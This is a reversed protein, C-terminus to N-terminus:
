EFPRRWKNGDLLERMRAIGKEELEDLPEDPLERILRVFEDTPFLRNVSEKPNDQWAVGGPYIFNIAQALRKKRQGIFRRWFGVEMDRDAESNNCWALFAHWDGDNINVARIDREAGYRSRMREMFVRRLAVPDVNSFDVLIKNRERHEIFELLRSAFTDDAARRMAGELIRQAVHTASLKQAAVFVLNLARSAEGLHMLDYIYDTAREAAAYALYEAASDTLRDAMVRGLKWLFDERKPQMRPIADLVQKYVASVGSESDAANMERLVREMEANSFMDQPIASRFYISFYDPSCIRKEDDAIGETTRRKSSRLHRNDGGSSVYDPFLWSLLTEATASEPCKSVEANLIKLFGDRDKKKLEDSIYEGKLLSVGGYTLLPRNAKVLRYVSPYFRGVTQILVLDVANVERVIARSASFVDNSLLSAKRFNTCVRSISDRWAMDLLKLFSKRDEETSFWGQEELGAKIGAQFCAGLMDSDPASVAISVPFFKELYDYSMGGDKSLENKIEEESFACVFTVNPISSAGRLIKLLVLLEDKQMRDIEDLLVLIPKPVRSFAERLDRLEERQSQSKLIEKLGGLYPVSGSLMRAYALAQKRLQPIRVHKDCEKAIDELLDSALSSVSGPLWASFSVVIAQGEVAKRLLNLVSTKGDGLGGKLAVIPTRLRFAHHALLEVVATRGVLDQSWDGIPDDSPSAQWREEIPASTPATPIHLEVTSATVHLHAQRRRYETIVTVGLAVFGVASGIKGYRSGMSLALFTVCAALLPTFSTIGAWWARVYKWLWRVTPIAAISFLAIGLVVLEPSYALFGDFRGSNGFAGFKRHVIPSVRSDRALLHVGVSVLSGAVCGLALRRWQAELFERDVRSPWNSM